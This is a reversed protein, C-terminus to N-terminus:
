QGCCKCRCSPMISKGDTYSMYRDSGRIYVDSYWLWVAQNSRVVGCEARGRRQELSRNTRLAPGIVCFTPALSNSAWKESGPHNPSDWGIRRTYCRSSEVEHGSRSIAPARREELSLVAPRTGGLCSALSTQEASRWRAECLEASYGACAEICDRTEQMEPSAWLEAQCGVADM